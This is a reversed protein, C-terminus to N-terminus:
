DGWATDRQITSSAFCGPPPGAVVAQMLELLLM